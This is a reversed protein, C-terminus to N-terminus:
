RQREWSTLILKFRQSQSSLFPFKRFPQWKLITENFDGSALLEEWKRIETIVGKNPPAVRTDEKEGKMIDPPCTLKNSFEVRCLLLPRRALFRM